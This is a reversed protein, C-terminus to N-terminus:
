QRRFTSGLGIQAPNSHEVITYKMINNDVYVADAIERTGSDFNIEIRGDRLRWSGGSVRTCRGDLDFDEERMKGSKEFTYVVDFQHGQWFWRGKWSGVPGDAPKERPVYPVAAVIGVGCVAMVLLLAALAGRRASRPKELHNRDFIRRAFPAM